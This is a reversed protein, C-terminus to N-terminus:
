RGMGMNAPARVIWGDAAQNNRRIRIQYEVFNAVVFNNNMVDPM